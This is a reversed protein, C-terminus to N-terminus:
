ETYYREYLKRKLINIKLLFIAFYKRNILSKNLGEIMTMIVSIRM